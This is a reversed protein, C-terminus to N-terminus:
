LNHTFFLVYTLRVRVVHYDLNLKDIYDSHAMLVIFLLNFGDTLVKSLFGVTARTSAM